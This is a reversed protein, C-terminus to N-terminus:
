SGSRTEEDPFHSRGGASTLPIFTSTRFTAEVGIGDWSVSIIVLTHLGLHLRWLKRLWYRHM